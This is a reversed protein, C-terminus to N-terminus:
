LMQISKVRKLNKEQKKYKNFYLTQLLIPTRKKKLKM